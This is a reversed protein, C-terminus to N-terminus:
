MEPLINMNNDLAYCYKSYPRQVLEFKQILEIVWEPILTEVKIELIVPSEHHRSTIADDYFIMDNENYNLDISGNVPRYVLNRDFTIRGYEELQTVYPEREYRVHLISEAMYWHIIHEFSDLQKNYFVHDYDSQECNFIQPWEHITMKYRNKWIVNCNRYKIEPWIYDEARLGYYRARPKFRTLKKFKTDYYFNLHPTDFYLNNVIYTKEGSPVHKDLVCFHKIYNQIQYALEENVVYKLEYRKIDSLPEFM